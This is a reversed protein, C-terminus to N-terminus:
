GDELRPPPPPPTLPSKTIKLGNNTADLITGAGNSAFGGTIGELASDDLLESEPVQEEDERM